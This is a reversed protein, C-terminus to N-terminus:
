KQAEKRYDDKYIIKPNITEKSTTAFNIIVATLVALVAGSIAGYFAGSRALKVEHVAMDIRVQTLIEKLLSASETNDEISRKLENMNRTINGQTIKNGLESEARAKFLLFEQKFKYFEKESIESMNLM